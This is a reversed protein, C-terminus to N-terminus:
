ESKVKFADSFARLRALNESFVTNVVSARRDGYATALAAVLARQAEDRPMFRYGGSTGRTVLGNRLMAQLRKDATGQKMGFHSDIATTTWFTDPARNLLLLIELTEISDVYDRIFEQLPQPVSM